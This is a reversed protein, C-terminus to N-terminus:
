PHSPERGNAAVADTPAHAVLEETGRLDEPFEATEAAPEAQPGRAPATGASAAAARDERRRMAMDSVIALGFAIVLAAIVALVTLATGISTPDIM